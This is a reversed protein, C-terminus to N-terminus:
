RIFDFAVIACGPEDRYKYPVAIVAASSIDSECCLGWVEGERRAIDHTDISLIKYFISRTIVKKLLTLIQFTLQARAVGYM